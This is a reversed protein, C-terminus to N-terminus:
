TAPQLLGLRMTVVVDGMQGHDLFELESALQGPGTSGRSPVAAVEMRGTGAFGAGM